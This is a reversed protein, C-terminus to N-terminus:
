IFSHQLFAQKAEQRPSIYIQSDRPSDPGLLEIKLDDVDDDKTDIRICSCRELSIFFAAAVVNMFWAVVGDLRTCNAPELACSVHNTPVKIGPEIAPKDGKCYCCYKTCSRPRPFEAGDM